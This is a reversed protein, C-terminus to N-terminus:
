GCSHIREFMQFGFSNLDLHPCSQKGRHGRLDNGPRRETIIYKDLNEKRTLVGTMPNSSGRIVENVRYLSDDTMNQFSPTLYVTFM